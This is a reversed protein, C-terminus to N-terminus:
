RRDLPGSAFSPAKRSRMSLTSTANRDPRSLLMLVTSKVRM